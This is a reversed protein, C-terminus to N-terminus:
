KISRILRVAQTRKSAPGAANVPQWSDTGVYLDIEWVGAPNFDTVSSSWYGINSHPFAEPHSTYFPYIERGCSKSLAQALPTGDSCLIVTRLEEITPMRWDNYGAFSNSTAYQKMADSWLLEVPKGGLCDAGSAGESCKKWMLNTQKDTITGDGHDIYRNALLKGSDSKTVTPKTETPQTPKPAIASSDPKTAPAVSNSTTTSTDTTACATLTLLSILVPLIYNNM